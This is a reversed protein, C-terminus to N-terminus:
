QNIFYVLPIFAPPLRQKVLLICSFTEHCDIFYLRNHVLLLEAICYFINFILQVQLLEELVM